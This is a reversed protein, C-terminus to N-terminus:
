SAAQGDLVGEVFPLFGEPGSEFDKMHVSTSDSAEFVHRVIRLRTELDIGAGMIVADIPNEDLAKRVEDLTTAGFLTVDQATLGKRAEDLVTSTRGVLLVGKNMAEEV